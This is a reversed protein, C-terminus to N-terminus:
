KRRKPESVKVVDYDTGTKPAELMKRKLGRAAERTEFGGQWEDLGNRYHVRVGWM